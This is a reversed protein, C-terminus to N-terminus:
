ITRLVLFIIEEHLTTNAIYILNAFTVPHVRCTFLPYNPPIIPPIIHPRVYSYVLSHIVARIWILNKPHDTIKSKSNNSVNFKVPTSYQCTSDWKYRTCLGGQYTLSRLNVCSVSFHLFVTLNAALRHFTM